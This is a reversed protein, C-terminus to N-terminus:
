HVLSTLIIEQLPRTEPRILGIEEYYRIAKAPRGSRRAADGVNM